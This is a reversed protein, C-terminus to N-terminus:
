PEEEENKLNTFGYVRPKGGSGGIQIGGGSFTKAKPTSKATSITPSEQGPGTLFQKPICCKFATGICALRNVYGPIGKGLIRKSAENTFNNCNRTIVNYSNGPFESKLQDIIGLVERSSLRTTGLELSSRYTGDPFSTKPTCECVGTSSGDHGGFSYEVGDIEIGTHYFGLGIAHLYYNINHLNYLHLIIKTERGRKQNYNM